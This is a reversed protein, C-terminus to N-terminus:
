QAEGADKKSAVIGYNNPLNVLAISELAEPKNEEGLDMFHLWVQIEEDIESMPKGPLYIHIEKTESLAYPDTPVYKVEDVITEEKYETDNNIQKIDMVYTYDDVKRINDFQGSYQCLYITGNPYGDGTDGMDSDHFDGKFTGDANIEFEDIWAGAGSSFCYDYQSLLEFNVDSAEDAGTEESLSEAAEESVSAAEVSAEVEAANDKGFLNEVDEKGCGMVCTALVAALVVSYSKKM